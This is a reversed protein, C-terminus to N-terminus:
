AAGYVMFGGFALGFLLWLRVFGPSLRDFRAVLQRMRRRGMVELGVAAVIAVWGLTQFALPARSESAALLLAVGLVLRAAVAVAIGSERGLVRAVFQMLRAPAQIGWVSLACVAVGMVIVITKSLVVLITM